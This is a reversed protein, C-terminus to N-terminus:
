WVMPEFTKFFLYRKVDRINMNTIIGKGREGIIDYKIIQGQSTGVILHKENATTDISTVSGGVHLYGKLETGDGCWWLYGDTGGLIFGDGFPSASLVLGNAQRYGGAFDDLEINGDNLSNMDMRFTTNKITDSWNTGIAAYMCAAHLMDKGNTHFQNQISFMSKQEAYKVLTWNSDEHKFICTGAHIPSPIKGGVVIFTDDISIDANIYSLNLNFIYDGINGSISSSFAVVIEDLKHHHPYLLLTTNSELVYVGETAILLVKEGNNFVKIEQIGLKEVSTFTDTFLHAYKEQFQAGYNTPYNFIAVKDGNWGLTVIINDKNAVAIYKKDKSAGFAITNQQLSIENKHIYYIENGIKALTTESDIALIKQVPKGLHEWVHKNIADHSPAFLARAKEPESDKNLKEIALLVTKEMDNRDDIPEPENESVGSNEEYFQGLWRNISAYYSNGKENWVKSAEELSNFHTQQVRNDLSLNLDHNEILTGDNALGKWNTMYGHTDYFYELKFVGETLGNPFEHHTDNESDITSRYMTMANADYKVISAATGDPHFTVVESINGNEYQEEECKDGDTDWYTWTGDKENNDDYNGLKWVQRDEDWDADDPISSTKTPNILNGDRDLEENNNNFFQASVIEGNNYEYIMRFVNDPAQPPICNETTENESDQYYFTGHQVGNQYTGKQSYTGDIHYRTYSLMNGNDDFFSHCCLHKTPALWWKWEGIYKGEKNKQGLEWENDAANWVANTPLTELTTKYTTDEM